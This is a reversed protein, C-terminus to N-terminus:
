STSSAGPRTRWQWESLRAVYRALMDIEVNIHDGASLAGFTTVAATHPIITVEFTDAHVANVTLSVGDLAISGKPAIMGMLEAPPAITHRWAEGERAVDRVSAIGDVHGFVFHGGLEDGARLSRELNVRTGPSWAGLTTCRLTEPSADIAFATEERHTVTLCIGSCAVSAGLPLADADWSTDIWLRRGGADPTEVRQVSGLDAILGTFM